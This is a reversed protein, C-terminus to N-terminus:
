RDQTLERQRHGRRQFSRTRHSQRADAFLRTKLQFPTPSPPQLVLQQERGRTLGNIRLAAQRRQRHRRRAVQKEVDLSVRVREVVTQVVQKADHVAASLKTREPRSIITAFKRKGTLLAREFLQHVEDDRPQIAVGGHVDVVVRWVLRGRQLAQHTAVSRTLVLDVPQQAATDQNIKEAGHPLPPPGADLAVRDLAYLRQVAERALDVQAVRAAADGGKRLPELKAM